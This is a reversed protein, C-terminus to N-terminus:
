ETNIGLHWLHFNFMDENWRSDCSIGGTNSCVTSKQQPVASHFLTSDLEYLCVPPGSSRIQMSNVPYIWSFHCWCAVTRFCASDSLREWCTLNTSITIDKDIIIAVECKGRYSLCMVELAEEWVVHKSCVNAKFWVWTQLNRMHFLKIVRTYGCNVEGRILNQILKEGVINMKLNTCTCTLCLYGDRIHKWVFVTHIVYKM